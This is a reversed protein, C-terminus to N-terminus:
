SEKYSLKVLICPNSMWSTRTGILDSEDQLMGRYAVLWMTFPYLGLCLGSM